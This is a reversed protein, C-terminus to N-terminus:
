FYFGNYQIYKLERVTYAFIIKKKSCERVTYAFIIKKKSRMVVHSFSPHDSQNKLLLFM